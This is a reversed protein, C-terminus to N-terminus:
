LSKVQCSLWYEERENIWNLLQLISKAFGVVGGLILVYFFFRLDVMLAIQEVTFNIVSTNLLYSFYVVVTLSNAICFAHQYITGKTIEIVFIFFLYVAFFVTFLSQYSYISQISAMATSLVVFVFYAIATKAFAKLLRPVMSRITLLSEKDAEFKDM